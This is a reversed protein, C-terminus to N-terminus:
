TLQRVTAFLPLDITGILGAKAKVPREARAIIIRLLNKFLPPKDYWDSEYAAFFMDGSQFFACFVMETSLVKM